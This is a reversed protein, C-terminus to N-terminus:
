IEAVRGNESLSSHFHKPDYDGPNIETEDELRPFVRGSNTGSPNKKKGRGGKKGHVGAEKKKEQAEAKMKEVEAAYEEPRM